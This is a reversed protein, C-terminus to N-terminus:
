ATVLTGSTKHASRTDTWGPPGFIYGLRARWTKAHVVDRVIAMTEIYNYKLPNDTNINHILGYRLPETEQAYTGFLRDWIILVGGYNKDIYPKNSGHHVRHHSPTNFIFEYPRWLTGIRTTHCPIQFILGATNALLIMWVPFGLLVAPLWALSRLTYSVPHLWPLRLNTSMNFYTSSHHVSHAAWLLRIRHDARHAWYYCFDTVVLCAVWVWWYAPSLQLPTLAGAAILASFPLLYHGVMKFSANVLYTLWNGATDRASFTYKPNDPDRKTSIWEVISLLLFAPMTSLILTATLDM